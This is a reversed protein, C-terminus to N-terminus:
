YKCQGKVCMKLTVLSPRLKPKLLLGSVVHPDLSLRCQLFFLILTIALSLHTGTGLGMVQVPLAHKQGVLLLLPLFPM